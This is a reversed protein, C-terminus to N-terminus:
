DESQPDDIKYDIVDGSQTMDMTIRGGGIIHYILAGDGGSTVNYRNLDEERLVSDPKGLLGVVQDIGMGEHIQRAQDITVHADPVSGKPGGFIATLALFVAVAIAIFLMIKWRAVKEPSPPLQQASPSYFQTQPPAVRVQPPAPVAVRGGSIRWSESVEQPSRRQAFAESLFSGPIWAFSSGPYRKTFDAEVLLKWSQFNLSPDFLGSASRSSHSGCGPCFRM